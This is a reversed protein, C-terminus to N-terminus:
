SAYFTELGGSLCSEEGEPIANKQDIAIMHSAFMFLSEPESKSHFLKLKYQISRLKHRISKLDTDFDVEMRTLIVNYQLLRVGKLDMGSQM